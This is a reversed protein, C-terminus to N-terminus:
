TAGGQFAARSGEVGAKLELRVEIWEKLEAVHSIIGVMRGARQLDKLARIAFDLSEPDLTGFGEDVFIADLRIGGAYNQVVDSLGLALALSALFSEGGSLTSAARQSGTYHDFVELDLGAASRQDAAQIRRRMEYRGRSMIRLRLTAAALVEELLTALVYRQYSMRQDNSGNAVDSVQRFLAHRAELNQFSRALNQLSEVFSATVDRASRTAQLATVADVHAAKAQEHAAELLAVDPRALGETGTLARANRDGAAKLSADFGQLAADLAAIDQEGLAAFRYAEASEFQHHTLAEKFDATRDNFQVGLREAAKVSAEAQASIAALDAAAKTAAQTANEMAQKLAALAHEATRRAAALAAPEALEAPVSGSRENVRGTLEQFKAHANGCSTTLAAVAADATEEEKETKTVLGEKEKLTQTAKEAAALDATAIDAQAKIQEASLSAAEGLTNRIDAIRAESLRMNEQEAAQAKEAERLAAQAQAVAQKAQELTEDLIVEGDAHAPSPHEQSGCVPCAKGEALEGALRAAQGAIWARHTADHAAQAAAVGAEAKKLATQRAELGKARTALENQLKTLTALQEQRSWLQTQRARLGDIGAVALRLSQIEEGLKRAAEHTRQQAEQATKLNAALERHSSEAANLELRAEALSSVKEALRDFEAIRAVLVEAEPSRLKEQALREDASIKGKRAQEREEALLKGRALEDTHNKGAELMTKELPRVAAARRAVVLRSRKAEFDPAQLSLQELAQRAADSEAFKAAVLRAGALVKETTVAAQAAAKESAEQAKLAAAQDALRLDLAKEDPVAAQDLLAQRLTRVEKADQEIRRASDRLAEEIRKYIETGFLTQLIKEREQTSSTLFERFKGQPLMIVQRFQASEFGILRVVAENVRSAGTALPLEIEKEAGGEIQWLDAKLSQKTEGGGRLAPRSQEPIRRVRYRKDGLAFDFRVETLTGPDAHHSRMQRGDREGGSSDGFLAYCIGDLITTKGSGTPGHILFFTREGLERFDIVQRHAFPGFAQMELVIPKM